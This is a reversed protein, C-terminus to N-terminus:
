RFGMAIGAFKWLKPTSLFKGIFKTPRDMDGHEALFEGVKAEKLDRILSNMKEGSLSNLYQRIKWHSNLERNLPELRKAYNELKEKGALFDIISASCADAGLAGLMLGGGTTAKTHFASDGVLMMNEQVPKEVAKGCPIIGGIDDLEEIEFKKEEVFQSFFKKANSGFKVGVGIKAIERSEPIVWGFFGEAFSGFHIQVFDKEWGSPNRARVQYGAILNETGVPIGMLKRVKSNVGDAGVVIQAKLIEGRSDSRIFVNGNRADILKANTRVQVGAKLAIGCHMKDYKERNVVVAVPEKRLIELFESNPSFIRAGCIKNVITEECEIGTEKLGSVSILGSCQEPIGIESHEEIVVTEIGERQLSTATRLGAPGGGIVAIQPM